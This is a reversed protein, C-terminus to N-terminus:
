EDQIGEKGYFVPINIEKAREVEMRCGESKEWEGFVWLEDALELLNMDMELAKDDDSFVRFFSFANLPSLPLIDPYDAAVKLCIQDVKSLNDILKTVSINDRDMDGRYPHSIYVTKFSRSTNNM